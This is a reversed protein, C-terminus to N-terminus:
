DIGSDLIAISVGGSGPSVDWARQAQIESLGWEQGSLPDNPISAPRYITNPEAYQVNPDRAYVSAAQQPDMGPPLAVVEVGLGALQRRVTAGTTHHVGAQVRAPTGQRFKVLLEGPVCEQGCVAGAALQTGLALLWTLWRRMRTYGKSGATKKGRM